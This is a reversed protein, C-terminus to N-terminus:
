SSYQQILSVYLCLCQLPGLLVFLNRPTHIYTENYNWVSWFIQLPNYNLYYRITSKLSSMLFPFYYSDSISYTLQRGELTQYSMLVWTPTRIKNMRLRTRHLSTVHRSERSSVHMAGAPFGVTLSCTKMLGVLRGDCILWWLDGTPSDHLAIFSWFPSSPFWNM